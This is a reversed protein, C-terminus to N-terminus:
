PHCGVAAEEAEYAKKGPIQRQDAGPVEVTIPQGEHFEQPFAQPNPTAALGPRPPLHRERDM